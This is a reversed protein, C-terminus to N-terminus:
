NKLITKSKFYGNEFDEQEFYADKGQLESDGMEFQFITYYTNPQVMTFSTIFDNLTM